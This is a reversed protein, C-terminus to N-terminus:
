GGGGERPSQPCYGRAAVKARKDRSSGLRQVARFEFEAPPPATQVNTAKRIDIKM